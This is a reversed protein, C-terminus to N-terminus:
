GYESDQGGLCAERREFTQLYSANIFLRGQAVWRMKRIRFLVSVSVHLQWPVHPTCQRADGVSDPKASFLRHSRAASGIEAGYCTLMCVTLTSAHEPALDTLTVVDNHLRNKGGSDPRVARVTKSKCSAIDPRELIESFSPPFAKGQSAISRRNGAM